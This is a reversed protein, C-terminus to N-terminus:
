SEILFRIIMLLWLHLPYVIYFMYKTLKTNRGREGNYLLIFPIVSINFWENDFCLYHYLSTSGIVSTFYSYLTMALLIMCWIAIGICQLDKRGHFFWVIVAIPLLYIGGELILSIGSIFIALLVNIAIHTHQRINELCWVLAFLFALTMFINHGEILSRLTYKGTEVNVNHFSFNILANGAFMIIGAVFLRILFKKRSRTHYFGEIMLYLFLPSVFRAIVDIWEPWLPWNLYEHTSHSLYLYLHDLIMFVLALIKLKYADIGHKMQNEIKRETVRDSLGKSRM